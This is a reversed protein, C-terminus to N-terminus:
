GLHCSSRWRFYPCSLASTAPCSAPTASLLKCGVARDNLGARGRDCSRGLLLVHLWLRKDAAPKSVIFWGGLYFLSSDLRCCSADLHSRSRDPKLGCRERKLRSRDPELHSFQLESSSTQHKLHSREQKLNSFKLESCCYELNKKHWQLESGCVQQKFCSSDPELPSREQKLGCIGLNSPRDCEEWRQTERDIAGAARDCCPLAQNLDIALDSCLFRHCIM